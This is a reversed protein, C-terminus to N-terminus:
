HAFRYILPNVVANLVILTNLIQLYDNINYQTIPDILQWMQLVNYPFWCIIYCLVVMAASRCVRGTFNRRRICFNRGITKLRLWHLLIHYGIFIYCSGIILLPGWFVTLMHVLNYLKETHVIKTFNEALSGSEFKQVQWVTTCQVFKEKPEYTIWVFWQGLSFLAALIWSVIIAILINRLYKSSLSPKLSQRVALMRDLAILVVSFGDLHFAYLSLFHYLKCLFSGGFWQYLLIWSWRGVGFSLLIIFDCITLNLTLFIYTKRPRKTLFSCYNIHKKLQRKLRFVNWINLTVGFVIAFPLYIIEIYDSLLYTPVTYQSSNMTIHDTGAFFSCIILCSPFIFFRFIIFYLSM